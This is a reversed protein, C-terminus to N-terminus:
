CSRRTPFSECHGGWEEMLGRMDGHSIRMMEASHGVSIEGKEIARRVLGAYRVAGFDSGKLRDPEERFLSAQRFLRQYSRLYDNRAETEMGAGMEIIRDLVTRCSVRFIRKVRILREISPIGAAYEWEKRFAKDPMLFHSAFVSAEHDEEKDEATQSVDYADPHLVLHGLERAVTFIRDEVTIREWTNVAIAPGGDEEAVSFGHLGGSATEFPYIKIGANELLGCINHIPQGAKAGLKKRCMAAALLVGHIVSEMAFYKRDKLVKELYEYDELWASMSALVNERSRLKGDYRFRVAHLHRAPFLLERLTVGLARAILVLTNTRSEAKAREVNKIAPLSIGSAAALGKQSMGRALRIRRVNQAITNLDM